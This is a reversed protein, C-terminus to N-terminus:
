LFKSFLAVAAATHTFCQWNQMTESTESDEVLLSCQYTSVGSERLGMGAPSDGWGLLSLNVHLALM